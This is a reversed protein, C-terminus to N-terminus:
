NKDGEIAHGDESLEEQTETVDNSLERLLEEPDVEVPEGDPGPRTVRATMLREFSRLTDLIGTDPVFALQEMPRGQLRELLENTEKEADTFEKTATDPDSVSNGGDYKDVLNRLKEAQQDITMSEEALVNHMNDRKMELEAVTRRELDDLMRDLRRRMEQVSARAQERQEMFQNKRAETADIHEKLSNLTQTLHAQLAEAEAETVPRYPDDEELPDLGELVSQVSNDLTPDSEIQDNGGCNLSNIEVNEDIQITNEEGGSAM